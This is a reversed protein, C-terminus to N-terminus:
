PLVKGRLRQPRAGCRITSARADADRRAGEAAEAAEAARADAARVQQMLRRPARRLVLATPAQWASAGRWPRGCCANPHPM